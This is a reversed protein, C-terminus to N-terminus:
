QRDPRLAAAANGGIVARTAHIVGEVNIRRMRAVQEADYDDLTGRWSIGANNVLITVAGLEKETRAVMADVATADAVDAAAAIAGGAPAPLKRLWSGRQMPM